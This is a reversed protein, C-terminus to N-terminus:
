LWKAFWELVQTVSDELCKREMEDDPNGRVAFGHRGPKYVRHEVEPTERGKKKEREYIGEVVKKTEIKVFADEQGWGYSTPVVMGEMDAPFDLNSPHLAVVADVLPTKKGGELTIMSKEQGARLAYRGGWCFGVMGIKKDPEARRLKELWDMCVKSTKGDKHRTSWLLFSPMGALLGTYKSLTGQKKADVPILVDALNLTLPDGSFFDPLYVLYEGTTAYSDAILKNNPLNLGFVDSYIVIIGKTPTPSGITYTPLGHFTTITGKPLGAHISGKICQDCPATTTSITAM